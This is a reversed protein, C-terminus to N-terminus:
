SKGGCTVSQKIFQKCIKLVDNSRKKREEPSEKEEAKMMEEFQTLSFAYSLSGYKMEFPM